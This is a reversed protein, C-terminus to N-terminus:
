SDLNVPKAEDNQEPATPESVLLSFSKTRRLMKTEDIPSGEITTENEPPNEDKKKKNEDESKRTQKDPIALLHNLYDYTSRSDRRVRNLGDFFKKSKEELERLEHQSDRLRKKTENLQESYSRSAKQTSSLEDNLTESFCVFVELFSFNKKEAFFDFSNRKEASRNEIRFGNSNTDVSGSTEDRTSSRLNADFQENRREFKRWRLVFSFNETFIVFKRCILFDDRITM